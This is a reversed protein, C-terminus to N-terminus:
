FGQETKTAFVLTWTPRTCKINALSHARYQERTQYTTISQMTNKETCNVLTVNYFLTYSKCLLSLM